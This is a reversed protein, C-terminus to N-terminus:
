HRARGLRQLILAALAAAMLSPATPEPVHTAGSSAALMNGFRARWYDYDAADVMANANGDAGSGAAVTQTLTNRWVVYDAADVVGNGNYDGTPSPPPAVARRYTFGGGGGGGSWATFRLDLYIDDAILHVVADRNVINNGIKNNYAGRWTTFSLNQWNAASITKGPNNLSTAWTTGTPAAHTGKNYSAENKANFLGAQSGRTLWANSTIRDQNQALAPNANNAKSFTTSLGSWVIPVASAIQSAGLWLVLALALLSKRSEYM